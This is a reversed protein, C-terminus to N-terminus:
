NILCGARRKVLEVMNNALDSCDSDITIKRGGFRETNQYKGEEADFLHMFEDADLSFWDCVAEAVNTNAEAMKLVPEGDEGYYWFDPFANCLEQFSWDHCQCQCHIRVHEEYAYVIVTTFLGHERHRKIKSLHKAYKLLRLDPINKM